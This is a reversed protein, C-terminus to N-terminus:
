YVKLESRVYPMLYDYGLSDVYVLVEKRAGSVAEYVYTGSRLYKGAIKKGDYYDGVSYSVVCVVEGKGTSALAAHESVRQFLRLQMEATQAGFDSGVIMREAKAQRVGAIVSLTLCSTMTNLMVFGCFILLVLRKM